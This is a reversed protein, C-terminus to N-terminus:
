WVQDTYGVTLSHDFHLRRVLIYVTYNNGDFGIL